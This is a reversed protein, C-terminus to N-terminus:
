TCDPTDPTDPPTTSVDVSPSQHNAGDDVQSAEDLPPAGQEGPPTDVEAVATGACALALWLAAGIARLWISRRRGHTRLESIHM